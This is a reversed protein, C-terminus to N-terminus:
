TLTWGDSRRQRLWECLDGTGVRGAAAPDASVTRSRKGGSTNRGSPCAAIGAEAMATRLRTRGLGTVRGLEVLRLMGLPLSAVSAHAVGGLGLSDMLSGVREDEGPNKPSFFGRGTLLDTWVRRTGERVRDAVVLHERVSMEAFVEPHQFTRGLGQRVRAQPTAATVDNGDLYVRGATPRRLGSLVSFLTSKGAGNPGILGVISDPPVGLSVGNCAVVGGFRVVVNEASLRYSGTTQDAATM